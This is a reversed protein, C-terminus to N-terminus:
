YGTAGSILRQSQSHRHQEGEEEAHGTDGNKTPLQTSSSSSNDQLIEPLRNQQKPQQQSKLILDRENESNWVVRPLRFPNDHYYYYNNSLTKRRKHVWTNYRHIWKTTDEEPPQHQQHQRIFQPLLTQKTTKTKTADTPNNQQEFALLDKRMLYADEGDQYYMPIVDQITYGLQQQYLKRAADNSVRVHLGVAQVHHQDRLHTHLQNMLHWALGRRRYSDLIALSTVHGYVQEYQFPIRDKDSDTVTTPPDVKGLVYGVIRRRNNASSTMPDYAGGFFSIKSEEEEEVRSPPIHEVVLALDPWFRLMESYFNSNYNEPLTALNCRQIDPIDERHAIRLSIHGGEELAREFTASSASSSSASSSAAATVFTAKQNSPVQYYPSNTCTSVSFRPINMINNIISARSSAFAASSCRLLYLFLLKCQDAPRRM